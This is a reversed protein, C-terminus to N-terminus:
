KERNENEVGKCSVSLEDRNEETKYRDPNSYRDGVDLMDFHFDMYEEDEIDELCFFDEINKKDAIM